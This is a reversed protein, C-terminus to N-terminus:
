RRQPAMKIRARTAAEQKAPGSVGRPISRDDRQYTLTPRREGRNDLNACQRLRGDYSEDRPLRFLERMSVGKLDDIVSAHVDMALLLNSYLRM